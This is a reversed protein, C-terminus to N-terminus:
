RSWSRECPAACFAPRLLDDIEVLQGIRAIQFIQLRDCIMGAILKDLGVDAVVSADVLEELGLLGVGHHVEGGLGVDVAANVRGAGTM